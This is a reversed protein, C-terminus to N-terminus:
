EPNQAYVYQSPSSWRLDFGSSVMLGHLFHFVPHYEDRHDIFHSVSSLSNSMFSFRFYTEMIIQTSCTLINIKYCPLQKYDRKLSHELLRIQELM